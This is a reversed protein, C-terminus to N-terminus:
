KGMMCRFLVITMSAALGVLMAMNHVGLIRALRFPVGILLPCIIGYGVLLHSFSSACANRKRVVLFYVTVAVFANVAAQATVIVWLQFIFTSVPPLLGITGYNKTIFTIIPQRNDDDTTQYFSKFAAMFDMIRIGELPHGTSIDREGCVIWSTFFSKFHTERRTYLSLLVWGSSTISGCPGWGFLHLTLCSTCSFNFNRANQL